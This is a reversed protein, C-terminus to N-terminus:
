LPLNVVGYGFKKLATLHSLGHSTISRTDSLDIYTLNILSAIGQDTIQDTDQLVLYTLNTLKNLEDDPVNTQTISLKTLKTLHSIETINTSSIWLTTLNTFPLLDDNTVTINDDLLLETLNPMSVLGIGVIGNYSGINLKTLNTLTSIGNRTITSRRGGNVSLDTLNTLCRLGDDNIMGNYNIDLTTLKTLTSVCNNSILSNRSICLSTLNTHLSLGGDTIAGNGHLDLHRLCSLMSLAKDTVRRFTASLNLQEISLFSLLKQDTLWRAIKKPLRKAVSFIRGIIRDVDKSVIRMRQLSLFQKRESQYLPYVWGIITRVIEEELEWLQTFHPVPEMTRKSMDLGFCTILFDLFM